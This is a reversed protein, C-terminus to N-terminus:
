RTANEVQFQQELWRAIPAIRESSQKWQHPRLMRISWPRRPDAFITVRLPAALEVYHWENDPFDKRAIEAVSEEGESSCLRVQAHEDDYSEVLGEFYEVVQETRPLDPEFLTRWLN